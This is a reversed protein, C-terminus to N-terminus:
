RNSKLRQAPIPMLKIFIDKLAGSVPLYGFGEPYDFSFNSCEWCLTSEFILENDAFVEIKHVPNHCMAQEGEPDTIQKTLVPLLINREKENLDKPEPLGATPIPAEQFPDVPNKDALAPDFISIIVKDAKLIALALDQRYEERINDLKEFYKQNLNLEDARTFSLCLLFLLFFKM